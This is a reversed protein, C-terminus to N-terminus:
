KSADVPLGRASFSVRGPGSTTRPLQILTPSATNPSRSTDPAVASIVQFRRKSLASAGRNWRGLSHIYRRASGRVLISLGAGAAVNLPRRVTSPRGTSTSPQRPM